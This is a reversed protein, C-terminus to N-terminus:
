ELGGSSGGSSSRARTEIQKRGASLVAGAQKQSQARTVDLGGISKNRFRKFKAKALAVKGAVRFQRHAAARETAELDLATDLAEQLEEKAAENEEVEASLVKDFNVLWMPVMYQEPVAAVVFNWVLEGAGIAVCIGWEKATLGGECNFVSGGYQVIFFQGGAQPLRHM